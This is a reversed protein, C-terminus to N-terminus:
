DKDSSDGTQQGNEPIDMMMLFSNILIFPHVKLVKALSIFTVLRASRVDGDLLKYLESRSIGARQALETKSLGLANIKENIFNSLELIGM